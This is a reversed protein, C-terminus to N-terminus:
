PNVLRFFANGSAPLNTASTGEGSGTYTTWVGSSLNTSTQLYVGPRGLWTLAVNGATSNSIALNGFSIENAAAPNAVQQGFIDVPFSYTGLARIYRSHNDAFGAENDLTGTNVPGANHFIGYKYTIQLPSGAPILFSVSYLSSLGVETLQLNPWDSQVTPDQWFASDSLFQGSPPLTGNIYVTDTAPVFAVGNDDVANTMNVTFTVETAEPLDNNPDQDSWFVLPLTEASSPMAFVRNQGGTSAPSEYDFTGNDNIIYKYQYVNGPEGTVVFTGSFINTNAANPDNTLTAGSYNPNQFNGSVGVTDGAGPNVNGAEVQSTMDVQFTIPVSITNNVNNFYALPFTGANTPTNFDRNNISEYTDAGNNVIVYKYQEWTGPYNGDAYTGSYINPNAADPNNTLIFGATWQNPSEFTGFAEITETAPTFTGLAIASTMDIQFTLSNTTASPPLWLDTFYVLSLTQAGPQLTFVRNDSGEYTTTSSAAILEYFKYQEATNTPNPDLYTGSYINPNAAAPNNTLLFGSWANTQFTGAAYVTDGNGPNFNGIAIQETMDVQFTVPTLTPAGADFTYSGYATQTFPYWGESAGNDNGPVAESSRYATTSIFSGFLNITTKVGPHLGLDTVPFSFTYPSANAVLNASDIYPLSGNNGNALGWIGGYVGPILSIAFQPSFGSEFTMVSRGQGTQVGSIIIHNQDTQDNFGSTSSFGGGAGTDVYIVLANGGMSTQGNGLYITGSINTGDDTLMLTGDGIAGGFGTSNNGPFNSARAGTGGLLFAALGLAATLNVLRSNQTVNNNLHKM